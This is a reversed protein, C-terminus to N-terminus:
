SALSPLALPANCARTARTGNLKLFKRNPARVDVQQLHWVRARPGALYVHLPPVVCTCGRAIRLVYTRGALHMTRCVTRGLLEWPQTTHQEQACQMVHM